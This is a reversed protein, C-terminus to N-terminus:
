STENTGGQTASPPQQQGPAQRQMGPVQQEQGPAQQGQGEQGQQQQAQQPAQYTGDIITDFEPKERKAKAHANAYSEAFKEARARDKSNGVYRGYHWIDVHHGIEHILTDGLIERRLAKVSIYRDVVRGEYIPQVRYYYAERIEGGLNFRVKNIKQGWLILRNEKPNKTIAKTGDDRKKYREEWIVQYAGFAWGSHLEDSYPSRGAIIISMIGNLDDPSMNFYNLSNIVDQVTVPNHIGEEPTEKYIPVGQWEDQEEISKIERFQKIAQGEQQLLCAIDHGDYHYRM